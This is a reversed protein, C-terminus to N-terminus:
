HTEKWNNGVKLEGTLPCKIGWHNGAEALSEVFTRGVIEAIEKRATAQIEDHVHAVLAFDKGWVYGMNILKQYWLVTAKKVILAGFSQLLTNLISHMSRVRLRRGDLGRLWGRTRQTTKLDEILKGLGVVGVEVRRGAYLGRKANALREKTLPGKKLMSKRLWGPVEEQQAAQEHDDALRVLTAGVKEPGGGYTKAYFGNKALSRGEKTPPMGFADRNKTHVDGTTVVTVYEGGDYAFLYHALARAEIGSADAGVLVRGEDALFLARCEEGYPSGVRPVQGTNPNIHSCRGTVAANTILEGHIRGNRELKLWAKDGTAIQGIRKNLLYWEALPKAEPYPLAELITDDITPQGTESFSQPKWGLAKLREGVQKRSGPNFEVLRTKPIQKKPTLYTEVLPPFVKMLEATLEAQRQVMQAYLKAAGATDFRFGHRTQQLIISAFDHELQIAEQSYEQSEIHRLLHETVEVDQECYAQMEPSWEKFDSTDGFNGKLVGLRYGWAKLSHSGIYRKPFSSDRRYDDADIDTFMLRSCLLTDTVKCTPKLGFGPILKKLIPLDFAMVNHGIVEDAEEIHAVGFRIKLLLESEDAYSHVEGTDLDKVVLSHIKTAEPKDATAVLLGDTELDFILRM